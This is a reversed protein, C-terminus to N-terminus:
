RLRLGTQAGEDPATPIIEVYNDGFASYARKTVWSTTPLSTDDRLRMEIRALDGDVSLKTVEGVRVGAIMVPSGTAIKSADRFVACTVFGEGVTTDPMRSRILM